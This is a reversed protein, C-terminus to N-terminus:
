GRQRPRRCLVLTVFLCVALYLAIPVGAFLLVRGLEWFPQPLSTWLRSLTSEPILSLLQMFTFYLMRLPLLAVMWIDVRWFARIFGSGQAADIGNKLYLGFGMAMAIACIQLILGIVSPIDSASVFRGYFLLFLGCASAGLTLCLLLPAGARAQAPSMHADTGTHTELPAIDRLLWDTTVEFYEALAVVKDTDPKAEGTEWKSVAQRSVGLTIALEEQSLGRKKRLHTIKEGLTM